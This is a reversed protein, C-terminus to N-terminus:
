AKSVVMNGSAVDLETRMFVEMPVPEAWLDAAINFL